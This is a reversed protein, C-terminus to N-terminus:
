RAKWLGVVADDTHFEITKTVKGNKPAIAIVRRKGSESAFIRKLSDNRGQWLGAIGLGCVVVLTGALALVLPRLGGRRPQAMLWLGALALACGAPLIWLLCNEMTTSFFGTLLFALISARMATQIASQSKPSGPLPATYFWLSLVVCVALAFCLVGQEVLFTVYSNVMTRYGETRGLPQYWQMFENGSQGRGFGYPNEVAMQLGARWLDFRHTVSADSDLARASREAGGSWCAIYALLVILIISLCVRATRLDFGIAMVVRSPAAGDASAEDAAFDCSDSAVASTGGTIKRKDRAVKSSRNKWFALGWVYGLAAVGAVLGGRSFTMILCVGAALFVGASLVLSPIRVWASRVGWSAMWAWWCLPLLCAFIVAAKNPNDFGISWRLTEGYLFENM